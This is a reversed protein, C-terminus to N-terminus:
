PPVFAPAAVQPIITYLGSTVASTTAGALYAVAKLTLTESIHVSGTYLTGATETPTSGDTTFRISAGVTLSVIAVDRSGAYSGPGPSFVPAEVVSSITYAGTSVPSDTWGPRTAIAKIAISDAVHVPSAYATGNTASPTSGDTTFRITAGTTATTIAVDQATAYTGPLPSFTPAAVTKLEPNEIVCGALFFLALFSWGAWRVGKPM